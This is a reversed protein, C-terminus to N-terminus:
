IGFFQKVLLPMKLSPKKAKQTKLSQQLKRRQQLKQPLQLKKLRCRLRQCM